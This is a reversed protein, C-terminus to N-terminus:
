SPDGQPDPDKPVHITMTSPDFYMHTPTSGGHRNIALHVKYDTQRRLPMRARLAAAIRAALPASGRGRRAGHLPHRDALAHM